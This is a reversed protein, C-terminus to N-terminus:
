SRESVHKDGGARAFFDGLGLFRPEEIIIGGLDLRLTAIM